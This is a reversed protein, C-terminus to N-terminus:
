RRSMSKCETGETRASATIRTRTRLPYVHRRVPVVPWGSASLLWTFRSPFLPRSRTALFLTQTSGIDDVLSMYNSVMDLVVYQGNTQSVFCTLAVLLTLSYIAGADILIHLISRLQSNRHGRLRMAKNDVYWIRLVLLVPRPSLLKSRQGVDM